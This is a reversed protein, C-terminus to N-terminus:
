EVPNKSANKKATSANSKASTQAQEQHIERRLETALEEVKQELNEVEVRTALGLTKLAAKLKDEAVSKAFEASPLNKAVQRAKELGEKGFTELVKISEKATNVTKDLDLNQKLTETAAKIGDKLNSLNKNM